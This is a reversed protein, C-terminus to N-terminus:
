LRVVRELRGIGYFDDGLRVTSNGAPTAKFSALRTSAPEDPAAWFPPNAAALFEIMTAGKSELLLRASSELTEPALRVMFLYGTGASLPVTTPGTVPATGGKGALLFAVGGLAAVWALPSVADKTLSAVAPKRRRRAM